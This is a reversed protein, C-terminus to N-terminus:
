PFICNCSLFTVQPESEDKRLQNVVTRWQVQGPRLQIGGKGSPHAPLIEQATEFMLTINQLTHNELYKGESRLHEEMRGMLFRLDSLRKKQNSSVLDIPELQRYPPVGQRPNGHYWLLFVHRPTGSSFVFDAPVRRFRGRHNYLPFMRPAAAAHEEEEGEQAVLDNNNRDLESSPRILAALSAGLADIKQSLRSEVFDELGARTISGTEIAKEELVDRVAKEVNKAVSGLETVMGHLASTNKSLGRLISVHPPIGTAHMIDTDEHGVRIHAMLSSHLNKDSLLPSSFVPHTSPLTQRLFEEHYLLSAACLVLVGHLREPANPFLVNIALSAIRTGENTFHPPLMAFKEDGIPLGSACRGVIADGAAEFRLYTDQVGPQKWGARISTASIPAGGSSGSTCHTTCGKRPSHAALDKISAGLHVLLDNLEPEKLAAQFVKVFRDYQSGGEFLHTQDPKFPYTVFFLAFALMICIEPRLPNAYCARPYRSLNGEQDSKMHAFYILLHDGSAELHSLALSLPNSARAMLNWALVLVLQGFCEGKALLARAIMAYQELTLGDKGKKLVGADQAIKRQNTRNLGKNLHSIGPRFDKPISMSYHQSVWLVGARATKIKSSSGSANLSNLYKGFLDVTLQSMDWPPPPDASLLAECIINTEDKGAKTKPPNLGSLYKEVFEPNLYPRRKEHSYRLFAAVALLYQRQSPAAVTSAKVVALEDDSNVEDEEPDEDAPDM